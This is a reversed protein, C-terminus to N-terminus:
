KFAETSIPQYDAYPYDGYGNKGTHNNHGSSNETISNDCYPLNQFSFPLSQLDTMAGYISLYLKNSIINKSKIYFM